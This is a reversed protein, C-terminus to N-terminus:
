EVEERNEKENIRGGGMARKTETWAQSFDMLFAYFHMSTDSNFTYLPQTFILTKEM